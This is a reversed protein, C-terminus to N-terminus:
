EVNNEIQSNHIIIIADITSYKQVFIYTESRMM